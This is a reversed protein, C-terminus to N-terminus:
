RISAKILFPLLSNCLLFVFYGTFFLTINLPSIGKLAIIILAITALWKLGEGRYFTTMKHTNNRNQRFFVWYIFLGQPLVSALAGSVFSVGSLLSPEVSISILLSLSVLLILEIRIVQLYRKQTRELVASM